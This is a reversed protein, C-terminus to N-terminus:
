VYQEKNITHKQLASIMISCIQTLNYSSQWNWDTKAETDIMIKPWSDAIQQRFDPKYEIKFTPINKKIEAAIQEPTFSLGAINYATRTKISTQPAEMLAITAKVADEMLMMPLCTQPGLFCTYTEDFIAKHFIDIAYDTTGGGPLSQHGIIGPYRV